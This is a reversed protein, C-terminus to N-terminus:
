RAGQVRARSWSIAGVCPTFLACACLTPVTHLQTGNSQFTTVVAVRTSAGTQDPVAAVVECLAWLGVSRSRMSDRQAVDPLKGRRERVCWVCGCYISVLFHVAGARVNRRTAGM